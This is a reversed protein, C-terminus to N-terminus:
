NNNHLILFNCFCTHKQKKGAIKTLNSAMEQLKKVVDKQMDSFQDFGWKYDLATELTDLVLQKDIL